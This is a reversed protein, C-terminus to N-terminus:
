VCKLIRTMHNIQNKQTIDCFRCTTVVSLQGERVLSVSIIVGLPNIELQYDLVGRGPICPHVREAHRARVAFGVLLDNVHIYGLLLSLFFGPPLLVTHAPIIILQLFLRLLQSLSGICLLLM